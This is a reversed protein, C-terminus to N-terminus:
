TASGEDPELEGEYFDRLSLDACRCFFHKVRLYTVMAWRYEIDVHSLLMREQTLKHRVFMGPKFEIPESM